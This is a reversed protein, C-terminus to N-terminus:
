TMYSIYIWYSRIKLTIVFYDFIINLIIPITALVYYRVVYQYFVPNVLKLEFINRALIGKKWNNLVSSVLSSCMTWFERIIRNLLSVVPDMIPMKECTIIM